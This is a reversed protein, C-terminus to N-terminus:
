GNKDGKQIVLITDELQILNYDLSITRIWEEIAQKALGKPISGDQEKWYDDMALIGGVSLKNWIWLLSQQTPKYQDVDVLAFSYKQDEKISDFCTPIFGEYLEYSLPNLKPIYKMFGEIGDVSFKGKPYQGLDLDTPEDMGIFSDFGHVKKNHIEAIRVLRKFTSGRWVGIEAFDGEIESVLDTYIKLDKKNIQGM